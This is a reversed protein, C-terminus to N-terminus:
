VYVGRIQEDISLQNNPIKYIDCVCLDDKYM